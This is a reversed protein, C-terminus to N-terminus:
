RPCTTIITGAWRAGSFRTLVINPFGYIACKGRSPLTEYLAEATREFLKTGELRSPDHDDDLPCAPHVEGCRCRHRAPRM